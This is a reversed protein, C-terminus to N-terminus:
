QTTSHIYKQLKKAAAIYEQWKKASTLKTIVLDTVSIQM